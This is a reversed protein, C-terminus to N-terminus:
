SAVEELPVVRTHPHPPEALIALALDHAAARDLEGGGDALTWDRDLLVRVEYRATM